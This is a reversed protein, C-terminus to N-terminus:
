VEKQGRDQKKLLAQWPREGNSEYLKKCGGKKEGKWKKRVGDGGLSGAITIAVVNKKEV